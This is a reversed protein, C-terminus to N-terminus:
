CHLLPAQGDTVTQCLRGNKVLKELVAAPVLQSGVTPPRQGIVCASALVLAMVLGLVPQFLTEVTWRSPKNM